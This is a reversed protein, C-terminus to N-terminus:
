EHRSRGGLFILGWLALGTAVAIAIYDGVAISGTLWALTALWIAVVITFAIVADREKM